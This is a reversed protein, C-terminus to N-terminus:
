ASVAPEPRELQRGGSGSATNRLERSARCGTMGDRYPAHRSWFNALMQVAQWDAPHQQAQYDPVPGLQDGHGM